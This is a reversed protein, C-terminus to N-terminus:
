DVLTEHFELAGRQEGEHLSMGLWTGLNIWDRIQRVQDLVTISTTFDRLM